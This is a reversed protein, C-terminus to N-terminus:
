FPFFFSSLTLLWGTCFGVSCFTLNLPVSWAYLLSWVCATKQHSIKRFRAQTTWLTNMTQLDAFDPVHLIGRIPRYIAILGSENVLMSLLSNRNSILILIMRIELLCQRWETGTFSDPHIFQSLLCVDCALFPSSWYSWGIHPTRTYTRVIIHICWASSFHRPLLCLPILSLATSESHKSRVRWSHVVWAPDNPTHLTHIIKSTYTFYQLVGPRRSTSLSFFCLYFVWLLAKLRLAKIPCALFPSGLCSWETLPSHTSARIHLIGPRRFTGLGPSSAASTSSESCHKWGYDKSGVRWSHVVWAHDNLSHLTHLHQYLYLITIYWASSFHRPLFCLPLLSLATSESHKSRVRWSHVVWAPDNPTHLTHIIISTYTFYQLVGPRRSTGLSFVCLYFVWLLAKLISQDSM